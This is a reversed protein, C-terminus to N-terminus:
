GPVLINDGNELLINQQLNKGNIVDKYNFNLTKGDRKRLIKISKPKAYETLGGARAIMELVTTPSTLPYFGPKSVQGIIHVKKSEIKLPIVSVTPDRLFHSYKETLLERLEKVTLGDAKVENILPVRIMGDPTVIAQPVSSDADKWVMISLTDDIGIVYNEDVKPIASPPPVDKKQQAAAAPSSAPPKQQGLIIGTVALFLCASILIKKM